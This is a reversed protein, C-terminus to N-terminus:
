RLYVERAAPHKLRTEMFEDGAVGASALERAEFDASPTRNVAAVPGDDPVKILPLRLLTDDVRVDVADHGCKAAVSVSRYRHHQLRRRLVSCKAIGDHGIRGQVEVDLMLAFCYLFSEFLEVGDQVEDAKTPVIMAIPAVSPATFENYAITSERRRSSAVNRASPKPESAITAEM